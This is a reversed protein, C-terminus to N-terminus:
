AHASSWPWAEPVSCLGAKVPNMVTYSYCHLLDDEDRILHDYSEKQWFPSEKRRLLSNIEHATYSKWSHLIQSLTYGPLPRVVAHVHNPMIVWAQLQYRQGAFYCLAKAVLAAVDARRLHCTGYGCDLYQDVRSSYWQFLEKQEHWTLPRKEAVARQLIAEREKKFRILLEKPLTGAQRFTVFYTAGERKLHPLSNRSHFGTLLHDPPTQDIM